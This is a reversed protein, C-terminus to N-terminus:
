PKAASASVSGQSSTAAGADPPPPADVAIPPDVAPGPPCEFTGGSMYQSKTPRTFRIVAGTEADVMGQGSNNTWGDTWTGPTNVCHEPVGTTTGVLTNGDSSGNSDVLSSPAGKVALEPQAAVAMAPVAYGIGAPYAMNGGENYSLSWVLKGMIEELDVNWHADAPVQYLVTTRNYPSDMQDNMPQTFPFGLFYDNGSKEEESKFSKDQIAAILKQIATSSDTTVREAALSLPEWHLRLITTKSPTVAFILVEMRSSSAYTLSWGDPSGNLPNADPQPPQPNSVLSGKSDLMASSRILRADEAWSKIVPAAAGAVVASFGGSVGATEAQQVSTLALDQNNYGGFGGFYYDYGYNSYINGSFAGGAKQDPAQPQPAPAPESHAVMSGSASDAIAGKSAMAAAGAGAAAPAAAAPAAAATNAMPASASSTATTLNGGGQAVLNGGGQSVIGNGNLYKANAASLPKFEIGSIAVPPSNHGIATTTNSNGSTGTNGTAAGGNSTRPAPAAPVALSCGALAVALALSTFPLRLTRLTM